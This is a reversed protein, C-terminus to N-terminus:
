TSPKVGAGFLHVIFGCPTSPEVMVRSLARVTRTGTPAREKHGVGGTGAGVSRPPAPPQHRRLPPVPTWLRSALTGQFGPLAQRGTSRGPTDPPRQRRGRGAPAAAEARAGAGGGAARGETLRAPTLPPGCPCGRGRGQRPRPGSDGARAGGAREPAAGPRERPGRSGGRRDATGEPCKGGLRTRGEAAGPTQHYGPPAGAPRPSRQPTRAAGTGASSGKGRGTRRGSGSGGTPRGGGEGERGGGGGPAPSRLLNIGVCRRSPPRAARGVSFFCTGGRGHSGWGAFLCLVRIKNLKYYGRLVEERLTEGSPARSHAANTRPNVCKANAKGRPSRGTRRRAAQATRRKQASRDATVGPTTRIHGQLKGRVYFRRQGAL